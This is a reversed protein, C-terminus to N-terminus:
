AREYVLPMRSFLPGEHLTGEQDFSRDSFIEISKDVEGVLLRAMFSRVSAGAPAFAHGVLTVDARPKTPVLDSAARLSRGEDDNWHEDHEVPDEQDPALVSEAPRLLFTARCVVTLVWAAPKSQWLLSSVPLPCASVALM